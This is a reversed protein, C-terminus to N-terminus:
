KDIMSPRDKGWPLLVGLQGCLSLIISSTSNKNWLKFLDHHSQAQFDLKTFLSSGIPLCQEVQGSMYQGKTPNPGCDRSDLDFSYKVSFKSSPGFSLMTGPSAAISDMPGVPVEDRLAGEFVLRHRSNRSTLECILSQVRMSIGNFVSTDESSSSLKVLGKLRPKGIHPISIDLASEGSGSTSSGSKLNIMEGYGFPSRLSGQIEGGVGSARNGGGQVFSELKISPIKREVVNLNMIAEAENNEVKEVQIEAKVSEFIGSNRMRNESLQVERSFDPLKLSKNIVDLLEAYFYDNRCRKNGNVVVKSIRVAVVDNKNSSM